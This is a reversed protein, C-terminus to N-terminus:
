ARGGTVLDRELIAQTAAGLTSRTYDPVRAPSRIWETENGVDLHVTRCGARRGAEVDDLIDGIMWSRELDIGHEAAARTILGPLPKRCSCSVAYGPVRGAPHHPCYYFGALPVGAERFLSELRHRVGTMATASFLGLAVGPQNSVIFLRYGAAHLLRLAETADGRLRIKAPDVNFPINKVLTGDKDLFVARQSMASVAPRWAANM